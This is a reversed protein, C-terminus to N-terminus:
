FIEEVVSEGYSQDGTLWQWRENLVLQGGEWLPSSECRGAMLIGATNRHHYVFSLSGDPHVTGLLHGAEVSGGAYEGWLLDGRQYYTFQTEGSVEGSEANSRGRFRREHYNITM